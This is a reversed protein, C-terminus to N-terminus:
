QIEVQGKESNLVNFVANELEDLDNSLKDMAAYLSPALLLSQALFQGNKLFVAASEKLDNRSPEPV